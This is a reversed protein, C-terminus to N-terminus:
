IAFPDGSEFDDMRKAYNLFWKQAKLMELRKLTESNIDVNKLNGEYDIYGISDTDGCVIPFNLDNLMKGLAKALNRSKETVKNFCDGALVSRGEGTETNIVYLWTDKCNPCYDKTWQNYKSILETGCKSCKIEKDISMIHEDVAEKKKKKKKFKKKM